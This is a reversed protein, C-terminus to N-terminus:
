RRFFGDENPSAVEVADPSITDTRRSKDAVVLKGTAPDFVLHQRGNGAGAASAAMHDSVTKADSSFSM